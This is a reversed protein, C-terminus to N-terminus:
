LADDCPLTVCYRRVRGELRGSNALPQAGSVFVKAAIARSADFGVLVFRPMYVAGSALVRPAVGPLGVRKIRVLEPPLGEVERLAYVHFAMEQSEPEQGLVWVNGGQDIRVQTVGPESAVFGTRVSIRKVGDILAAANRKSRELAELLGFALTLTVDDKPGSLMAM